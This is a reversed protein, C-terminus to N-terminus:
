FLKWFDTMKKIFQPVGGIDRRVAHFKWFLFSKSNQTVDATDFFSLFRWTFVKLM